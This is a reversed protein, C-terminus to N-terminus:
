ILLYIKYLFDSSGYTDSGIDEGPISSGLFLAEVM